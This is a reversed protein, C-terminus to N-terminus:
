SRGFRELIAAKLKGIDSPRAIRWVFLSLVYAVGIPASWLWGWTSLGYVYLFGVAAFCSLSSLLMWILVTRMDSEHSRWLSIIFTLVVALHGLNDSLIVGSLGWISALPYILLGITAFYIISGRILLQARDEAVAYHNIVIQITRIPISAVLVLILPPVEAWKEAIDMLQLLMPIGGAVGIGIFPFAILCLRTLERFLESRHEEEKVLAPLAAQGILDMPVFAFQWLHEVLNFVGMQVTGLIGRTYGGTAFHGGNAIQSAVWVPATFETTEKVFSKPVHQFIVQSLSMGVAKPLVWATVLGTVVLALLDGYILAAGLDTFSLFCFQFVSTSLSGVVVLFAEVPADLNTRVIWRGFTSFVVWPAGWFAMAMTWKWYIGVPISVVVAVVLLAASIWLALTAFRKRAEESAAGFKQIGQNIGGTFVSLFLGYILVYTGYDGFDAKSRVKAAMMNVAFTLLKILSTAAFMYAAYGALRKLM